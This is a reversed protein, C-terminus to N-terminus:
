VIGFVHRHELNCVSVLMYSGPAGAVSALAHGPQKCRGGRSWWTNCRQVNRGLHVCSTQVCTFAVGWVVCSLMARVQSAQQLVYQDSAVGGAMVLHQMEPCGMVFCLGLNIGFSCLWGVCLTVARVQSVQQRVYQNSAVGGAVVLHQVEPCEARAWTIARKLRMVLHQVAVKQFSAAIDARLQQQQQQQDDAASDSSSSSSSPAAVAETSSGGNGATAAAAAVQQQQQQQQM